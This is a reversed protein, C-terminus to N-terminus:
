PPSIAVVTLNDTLTLAYEGSSARPLAAPQVNGDDRFTSVANLRAAADLRLDISRPAVALSLATLPDFGSKELWLVVRFSGDSKQFLMSRVDATDGSLALSLVGPAAVPETDRLLGILSKIQKYAPKEQGTATLLGYANFGDAGSDILQYIYTRSIGADFHLLLMRALYKAQLSEPLQTKATTDTGWGTETSLIPKTGSVRRTNCLKYDIAGYRWADCPPAGKAGWGGTAPHRSSYYAHTNGFDMYASLDGLVAHPGDGKDILSPGIIPYKATAENSRVYSKFVPAWARLTAVWDPKANLENPFEYAEFAPAVRAPFGQVFEKTVNPNFIFAVRIGAEGLERFVASQDRDPFGGLRDAAGDRVHRIGSELLKQKVLPFLTVYPTQLQNFHVNVGISDVFEAASRSQAPAPQTAFSCQSGICLNEPPKATTDAAEALAGLVACVLAMPWQRNAERM